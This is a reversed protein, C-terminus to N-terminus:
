AEYVLECVRLESVDEGPSHVSLGGPTRHDHRQLLQLDPPVDAGGLLVDDLHQLALVEDGVADVRVPQVAPDGSVCLYGFFLGHEVAGVGRQDGRTPRRQLTILVEQRAILGEDVQQLNPLHGRLAVKRWHRADIQYEVVDLVLGGTHLRPALVHDHLAVLLALVDGYTSQCVPPVQQLHRSAVVHGIHALLAAPRQTHHQVAVGTHESGFVVWGFQAGRHGALQGTQQQLVARM